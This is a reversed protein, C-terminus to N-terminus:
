GKVENTIFDRLWFELLFTFELSELSQTQIRLVKIERSNEITLCYVGCRKLLLSQVRSSQLMERMRLDSSGFSKFTQTSQSVAFERLQLESTARFQSCELRYVVRLELHILSEAIRSDFANQVELSQFVKVDGLNTVRFILFESLSQVIFLVLRQARNIGYSLQCVPTQPLM